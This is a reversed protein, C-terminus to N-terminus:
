EKSAKTNQDEKEMKKYYKKFLFNTKLAEMNQNFRATGEEINMASNYLSQRFSSDALILGATGQGSKMEEIVKQLDSMMLSTKNSAQEIKDLSTALQNSLTTDTFIKYAIGEGEQLRLTVNKAIKTLEATNRSATRLDGIALKLDRSITSDSLLSWLSESRNLKTSIEYLNTSIREINNNTTNLTRLMEDTEVPQRSQIVDGEEVSPSHDGVSNINVLKNGMLGDTGITAIANKKIFPKMKEEIIMTVNILTDNAVEISEVTGVDIGKFRVNNGPVLGNVNHVVATIEFTKGLLSRNKGIMYLTLILFLLGSLVLAGVKINEIGKNRM